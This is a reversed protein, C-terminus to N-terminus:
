FGDRPTAAVKLSLRDVSFSEILAEREALFRRTHPQAEHFAFAAESTYLEYFLREDPNDTTHSAYLLTDPEGTQIAAITKAALADFDDAAEPKLAFRVVLAFHHDV